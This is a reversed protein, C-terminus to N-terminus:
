DDPSAREPQFSSFRHLIVASATTDHFTDGRNPPPLVHAFQDLDLGAADTPEFLELPSKKLIQSAIRLRTSLEHRLVRSLAAMQAIRLAKRESDTFSLLMRTRKVTGTTTLM